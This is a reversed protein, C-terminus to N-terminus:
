FDSLDFDQWDAIQNQPTLYFTLCRTSHEMVLLYNYIRDVKAGRRELADELSERSLLYFSKEKALWRVMGEKWMPNKLRGRLQPAALQVDGGAAIQQLFSTIVQTIQPEPDVQIGKEFADAKRLGAQAILGIRRDQGRISAAEAAKTFLDRNGSPDWNTLAFVAARVVAYPQQESVLARVLKEDDPDKPLGLLGRIATTRRKISPHALQESFFPRLDSRNLAALSALSRFVPYAGDDSRLVEVVDQLVADSPPTALLEDLAAERDVANPAYKVISLLQHTERPQNHTEHLFDHDPDLLVADPSTPLSISLNDEPQSIHLKHRSISGKQIIGVTADVDYIPTGNSRDQVQKVVGTVAKRDADWHWSFELVPHGPKFLWQDCFREVNTKTAQTMADCFEHSDVPRYRYKELYYRIGRFFAEDGLTRRLTHIVAAAKEYSVRSFASNPSKYGRAAIARGQSSADKFYEQSRDDLVHEFEHKGRWHDAYLMGGFYTAFGEGLWVDAWSGYGVMDGFWQHVLEHAVVPSNSHFGSRADTLIEIPHLTASVNEVSGNHEYVVAQAYKEWPYRVGFLKSYYDIMESTEAFTERGLGEKGQPVVSMVPLGHRMETSVDFPGAALAILYTAHPHETKWYFTSSKGDPSVTDSVLRGNGLAYWGRPVTVRTESTAYDNPYDWTPMWTHVNEPQGPTWFGARNPESATPTLWHLGIGPPASYHIAATIPAGRKLSRALSLQLSGGEQKCAVNEGGVECSQIELEKGCHFVLTTEGNHLPILTNRVTAAFTHKEADIQLNVAVKLLDYTRDPAYLLKEATSAQAEARQPLLWAVCVVLLLM